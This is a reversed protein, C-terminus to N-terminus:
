VAEDMEEDDDEKEDDKWEEEPFYVIIDMGMNDTKMNRFARVVQEMETAPNHDEREEESMYALRDVIESITDAIFSGLNEVVVGVCRRGYMGRGSYSRTEFGAGDLLDKLISM